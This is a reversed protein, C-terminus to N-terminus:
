ILHNCLQCYTGNIFRPSNQYSCKKFGRFKEGNTYNLSINSTLMCDSNDQKLVNQNYNDLDHQPHPDNFNFWTPDNSISDFSLTNILSPVVPNLNLDGNLHNNNM